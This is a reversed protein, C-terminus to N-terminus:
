QLKELVVLTIDVRDGAWLVVGTRDSLILDYGGEAQLSELVPQLQKEIENLGDTRIQQAERQKEEQYRRMQITADEYQRRLSAMTDEPLSGTGKEIELQISNRWLILEPYYSLDVDGLFPLSWINSAAVLESLPTSQENNLLASLTHLDFSVSQDPRLGITSNEVLLYPAFGEKRMRKLLERLSVLALRPESDPWLLQAVKARPLIKNTEALYTLLIFRRLHRDRKIPQGDIEISLRGFSTIKLM